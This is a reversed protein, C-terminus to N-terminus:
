YCHLKGLIKECTYKDRKKSAEELKMALECVTTIRLNGSAGKLQHAVKGIKEFDNKILSDEIAALLEPVTEIYVAFIQQADGKSLGSVMMFAAINDKMLDTTELIKEHHKTYKGIVEFMVEFNIPKSIYDDMGAKLVKERDGEMVNATMAVIVTHKKQGERRRIQATSKYGDMVPMQCDMFVIDYDKKTVAIVAERGDIAIDCTMNREKLIAIVLKRNIENDEVLLIQPNREPRAVTNTFPINNKTNIIRASGFTNAQESIKLVLTFRFISGKGVESEVSIEGKMLKVIEKSIALGLGTGGFLRTTSTDAQIFPSFLKQVDEECIGIGTDQVAFSFVGQGDIGVTFDVSVNIEGQTTFKIANSLLNNLIQRLRAPDGIVNDPVNAKIMINLEINKEVAKPVLVAVTEEITTRLKFNINEMTLKGAEIKSFDLIDNILYLLMESATKAEKLYEAQDLSLNTRQLLDLFGLVANMPTRIEHSMNALFQSKLNTATVAQEKVTIVEFENNKRVSIDRAIGIIGINKGNEDYFPTKITEVALKIGNAMTIVAEWIQSQGSEIFEQEPEKFFSSNKEDKLFDVDTKGIIKEETEGIFQEAFAKNGGLYIGSTDKYFIIDPIANMMQKLFNKQTEITQIMEQKKQLLDSVYANKKYLERQMNIIENNLETFKQYDSPPIYTKKLQERLFNVYENNIAMLEEYLDLYNSFATIIYQDRYGIGGFNMITIAQNDGIISIEVGFTTQERRLTLTFDLFKPVHDPLIIKSIHDHVNLNIELNKVTIIDTIVFAADCAIVFCKENFSKM